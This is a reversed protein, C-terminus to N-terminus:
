RVFDSRKNNELLFTNNIYSLLRYVYCTPSEELIKVVGKFISWDCASPINTRLTHKVMNETSHNRVPEKSCSFYM